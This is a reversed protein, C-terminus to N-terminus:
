CNGVGPSPTPLTSSLGTTTATARRGSGPRCSQRGRRPVKKALTDARFKGAGTAVEHSCAVALVYGAGREELVSRLKPNGGYVEEGAV